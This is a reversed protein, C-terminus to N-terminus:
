RKSHIFRQAAAETLETLWQELDQVEIDELLQMLAGQLVNWTVAEAQNENRILQYAANFVHPYCEHLFVRMAVGDGDQVANILKQDLGSQQKILSMSKGKWEIRYM